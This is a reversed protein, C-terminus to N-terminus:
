DRCKKGAELTLKLKQLNEMEIKIEALRKRVFGIAPRCFAVSCCEVKKSNRVNGNATFRQCYFALNNEIKVLEHIGGHYATIFDGLNM